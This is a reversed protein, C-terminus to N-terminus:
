KSEKNINRWEPDYVISVDMWSKGGKPRSSGIKFHKKTKKMSKPVQKGTQVTKLERQINFPPINTTDAVM